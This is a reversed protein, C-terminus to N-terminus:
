GKHSVEVTPRGDRTTATSMPLRADKPESLGEGALYASLCPHPQRLVRQSLGYQHGTAASRARIVAGSRGTPPLHGTKRRVDSGRVATLPCKQDRKSVAEDKTTLPSSLLRRQASRGRARREAWRCAPISTRSERVGKQLKEDLEIPGCFPRGSAVSTHFEPSAALLSFFQTSDLIWFEPAQQGFPESGELGKGAGM